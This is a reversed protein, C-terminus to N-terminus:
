SRYSFPSPEPASCPCESFVFQFGLFCILKIYNKLACRPYVVHLLENKKIKNLFCQIKKSSLMEVVIKMDIYRRAM